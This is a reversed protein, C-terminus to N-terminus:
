HLIKKTLFNYIIVLLISCSILITNFFNGKNNKLMKKYLFIYKKIEFKGSITKNTIMAFTLEKCIIKPKFKKNLSMWLVYDSGSRKINGFGGIKKYIDAKVFVSPTMIYNIISLDIMGYNMLLIKKIFSINKRIRQYNKNIYGGEFIIWKHNSSFLKKNILNIYKLNFFDDDGHFNIYKGKSKEVGREFALEASKHTGIIVVLYKRKIKKIFNLTKKDNNEVIIIWELNKFQSYIFDIKKLNKKLFNIRNFTPTIISLLM